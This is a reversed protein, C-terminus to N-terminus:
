RAPGAPLEGGAVPMGRDARLPKTVPSQPWGRFPVVLRPVASGARFPVVLGPVASGAGSRRWWGRFPVALLDVPDRLIQQLGRGLGHAAFLWGDVAAVAGAVAVIVPWRFLPRLLTGAANAAREPLLTGRARLALLPNARPLDAPVGEAAVIRQIQLGASRGAVKLGGQPMGVGAGGPAVVPGPVGGATWGAVHDGRVQFVGGQRKRASNKAALLM